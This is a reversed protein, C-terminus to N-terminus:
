LQVIFNPSVALMLVAAQVRRKRDQATASSMRTLADTMVSSLTSPPTDGLLRDSLAAVLASPTMSEFSSTDFRIDFKQTVSSYQGWGTALVNTVFNAYGLVSNETTIQMEPAVLNNAALRTQAPMYGPRFFNFVSSSRLPTQGLESASDDTVTALYVRSSTFSDSTHPLARLLHTLRLVPERLKGNANLGPIALPSRAEPHLLIAKVTAGINGGSARFAATVDAVYAPSPNSTVLRQILQKSIFPATNPHSALRDFAAKLSARPNPTTQAPVVVGLFRKESTSHEEPYVSMPTTLQDPSNCEPTRWYCQWWAASAGSPPRYWGLGTFVKALGKVDDANYTEKPQGNVLKISGDDNLEHLGISFLQMVERAFNEDPIRGTRPDEKVGNIHSLYVGMAPHLAVAELLDRYNANANTTLMDLYNAAMQGRAGVGEKLTSVVFIESLAFAIRQRLQAPDAVAHTWWSQVVQQTDPTTSRANVTALHSTGLQLGLQEDIWASYGISQVHAIDAATPGFTAQVLFRHAQAESAPEISQSSASQNGTANSSSTSGGGGGGGCGALLTAATLAVIASVKSLSIEPMLSM